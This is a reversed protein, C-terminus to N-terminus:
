ALDPCKELEVKFALDYTLLSTVQLYTPEYGFQECIKTFICHVPFLRAFLCSSRLVDGASGPHLLALLLHMTANKVFTSIYTHHENLHRDNSQVLSIRASNSHEPAAVHEAHVRARGDALDHPLRLRQVRDVHPWLPWEADGGGALVVRDGEEVPRGELELEGDLHTTPGSISLPPEDPIDAPWRKPSTKEQSSTINASHNLTYSVKVM